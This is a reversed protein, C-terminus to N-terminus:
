FIVKIITDNSTWLPILQVKTLIRHGFSEGNDNLPIEEVKVDDEYYAEGHSGLRFRRLFIGNRRGAPFGTFVCSNELIVFALVILFCGAILFKKARSSLTAKSVREM